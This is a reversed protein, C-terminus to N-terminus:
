YNVASDVTKCFTKLCRWLLGEVLLYGERRQKSVGQENCAQKCQRILPLIHTYFVGMSENRETKELISLLWLNNNEEFDPSAIDGSLSLPFLALLHPVGLSIM